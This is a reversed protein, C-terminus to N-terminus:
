RRIFHNNLRTQLNFDFHNISIDNMRHEIKTILEYIKKLKFFVVDIFLKRLLIVCEDIITLLM